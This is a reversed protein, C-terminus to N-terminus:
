IADSSRIFFANNQLCKWLILANPLQHSTTTQTRDALFDSNLFIGKKKTTTNRPVVNQTTYSPHVIIPLVVPLLLLLLLPLVVVVRSALRDFSVVAFLAFM